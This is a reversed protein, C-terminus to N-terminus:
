KSLLINRFTLNIRTEKVERMKPIQHQWNQQTGEGMILLDGSNLLIKLLIEINDSNSHSRSRLEFKRSAGLSLSAIIPDKGLEPEDDSHWAVSDNGDRYQNLLVSNFQHQAKNEIWGKVLSLTPTWPHPHMSIGSYTYAVGDDGYWATLRPLPIERGYSKILDQQWAINEILETYLREPQGDNLFNRYLYIKTDPYVLKPLSSAKATPDTDSISQKLLSDQRLHETFELVEQLKEIPLSRLNESISKKIENTRQKIVQKTNQKTSQM